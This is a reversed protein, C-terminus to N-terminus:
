PNSVRDNVRLPLSADLVLAYSMKEFVRFVMLTGAPSDPLRVLEKTLPDRALEGIKHITLVNGEELGDRGGRNLMVVDLRGVNSVGDEVAMIM